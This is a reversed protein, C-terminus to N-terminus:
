QRQLIANKHWKNRRKRERKKQLIFTICIKYIRELFQSFSLSVFSNQHFKGSQKADTPKGGSRTMYQSPYYQTGTYQQSPYHQHVTSSQSSTAGSNASQSNVVHQGPSQM